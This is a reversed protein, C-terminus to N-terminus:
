GTRDNAMEPVYNPAPCISPSMFVVENFGGRLSDGRPSSSGVTATLHVFFVLYM